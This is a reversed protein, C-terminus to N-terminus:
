KVIANEKVLDMARSVLLDAKIDEVAIMGKIQDAPIKYFSAAESVALGSENIYTMPKLLLVRHDGITAEATLAHYKMRDIHLGLGDALADVTLFGANHRTNRYEEGPNGLGVIIWSVPATSQRSDSSIQRFLDFIDAM